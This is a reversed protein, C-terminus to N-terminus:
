WLPLRQQKAEVLLASLPVFDRGVVIGFRINVRVQFSGSDAPLLLSGEEPCNISVSLRGFVRHVAHIDQSHDPATRLIGAQRRRSTAVRKARCPNGGVQLIYSLLFYAPSQLGRSGSFM